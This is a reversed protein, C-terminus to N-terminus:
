KSAAPHQAQDIYGSLETMGKEASYGIKKFAVIGKPDVVFTTPMSIVGFDGLIAADTDYAIPLDVPVSRLFAEAQPRQRDVNVAVFDVDPRTKAYAALAPLEARCPGCWSAFFSVVVVRGHHKSIDFTKGDGLPADLTAPHGVVDVADVPIMEPAAMAAAALLVVM